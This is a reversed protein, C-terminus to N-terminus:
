LRAAQRKALDIITKEPIPKTDSLWIEMLIDGRWAHASASYVPLYGPEREPEEYVYAMGDGTGPIARGRDGSDEEAWYYGQDAWEAAAVYEEQRFQVLRIEGYRAEGSEWSVIAARRFEDAVLEVMGAAPEEFLEAYATLSLWGDAGSLEDVNRAGEPPPLLLERLDGDTKIRRDQAPSPPEVEGKGQGIVPQALSRLPTPARGAQVVFGACTGAIVGLAAAIAILRGARRRPAGGSGGGPAAGPQGQPEPADSTDPVAPRESDEM